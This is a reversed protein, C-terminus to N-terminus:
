KPIASNWPEESQQQVQGTSPPLSPLQRAVHRIDTAIQKIENIDPASPKLVLEMTEVNAQIAGLPQNIEHAISATLEGLHTECATELGTASYLLPKPRTAASGFKSAFYQAADVRVVVLATSKQQASRGPLL